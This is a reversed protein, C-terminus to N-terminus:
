FREGIRGRESWDYVERLRQTLRGKIPLWISSHAIVQLRTTTSYILWSSRLVGRSGSVGWSPPWRTSGDPNEADRALRHSIRTSLTPFGFDVAAGPMVGTMTGVSSCGPPADSLGTSTAGASIGAV